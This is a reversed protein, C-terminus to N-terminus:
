FESSMILELHVYVKDQEAESHGLRLCICGLFEREATAVAAQACLPRPVCFKLADSPHFSRPRQERLLVGNPVRCM